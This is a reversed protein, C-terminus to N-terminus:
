AIKDGYKVQEIRVNIMEMVEKRPGLNWNKEDREWKVYISEAVHNLESRMKSKISSLFTDRARSILELGNLNITIGNSGKGGSSIELNNISKMEGLYSDVFRSSKVVMGLVTLINSPIFIGDGSFERYVRCADRLEHGKVGKVRGRSSIDSRSYNIGNIATVSVGLDGSSFLFFEIDFIDGLLFRISQSKSCTITFDIGLDKSYRAIMEEIIKRM